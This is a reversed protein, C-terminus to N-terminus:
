GGYYIPIEFIFKTHKSNRDLYLQGGANEAISRASSLGLGTGKGVDKTTFFPEMIMSAIDDPIFGPDGVSIELYTNRSEVNISILREKHGDVADLANDVISHIAQYADQEPCQITCSSPAQFHFEVQAHVKQIKPNLDRLTMELVAKIQTRQREPQLQDGAIHRLETTIKKMQLVASEIRTCSQDVDDGNLENSRSQERMIEVHGLVVALPSNLEHAVGGALRGITALKQSEWLDKQVSTLEAAKDAIEKELSRTRVSLDHETATMPMLVALLHYLGFAFIAGPLFLDVHERVFPWDIFHLTLILGTAIFLKQAISIPTARNKRALYAAYPFSVVSSAIAPLAYITFSGGLAWISITLLIGVGYILLFRRFPLSISHTHSLVSSLILQSIFTGISSVIVLLIAPLTPISNALSSVFVGAWYFFIIKQLRSRSSAYQTLSIAGNLITTGLYFYMLLTTASTTTDM